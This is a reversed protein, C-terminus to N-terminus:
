RLWPVRRVFASVTPIRSWVHCANALLCMYFDRDGLEVKTRMGADRSDRRGRDLTGFYCCTGQSSRKTSLNATKTTV